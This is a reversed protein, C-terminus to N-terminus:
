KTNSKKATNELKTRPDSAFETDSKGQPNVSSAARGKGSSKKTM